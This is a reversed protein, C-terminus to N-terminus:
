AFNCRVVDSINKLRGTSINWFPGDFLQIGVILMYIIIINHETMSIACDFIWGIWFQIWKLIGYVFTIREFIM